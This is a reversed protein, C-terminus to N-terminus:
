LPHLGRFALGADEPWGQTLNFSQLASGAAGKVLNDIACLAVVRGNREDLAYGIQARNTGCVLKPEPHRYPGSREHVVDVFPEDRAFARYARALEREDVARELPVHCTALVGRVLEVATVSLALRLGPFGQEVEGAHRHGAPAYSRVCGARLPHHSAPNASAGGESSGVKVEAVVTQERSLLGARELPLLALQLATANCGVGSVHTATRLEERHLEPLGYVFRPLWDPEPHSEAYWERYREPDRLRFDASCDVLTPALASYHEIASAAKGHPLALFLADCAVLEQPSCFRTARTPGLHPHVRALAQGALRTSTAQALELEPHGEILRLLEGGVFGTAGVVSVRKM